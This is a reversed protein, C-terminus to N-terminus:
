PLGLASYLVELRGLCAGPCAGLCAGLCAVLCAWPLGFAPGLCAWPLRLWGLAAWPVLCYWSPPILMLDLV